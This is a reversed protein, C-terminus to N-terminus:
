IRLIFAPYLFHNADYIANIQYNPTVAILRIATKRYPKDPNHPLSPNVPHRQLQVLNPNLSPVSASASKRAREIQVKGTSEKVSNTVPEINTPSIFKHRESYDKLESAQSNLSIQPWGNFTTSQAAM